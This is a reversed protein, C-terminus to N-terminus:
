TKFLRLSLQRIAEAEVAGTPGDAAAVRELMGILDRLEVPTLKKQLISQVRRFCTDPDRSDRVLWRGHAFLEDATKPNAQFKEVIIDVITKRERETIAGDSQAIAAMMAVAAERPDDLANLPNVNARRSWTLRRWFGRAQDATDILDRAAQSAANVRWLIVGLAGIAALLMALIQM